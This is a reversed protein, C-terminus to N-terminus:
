ILYYKPFFFLTSEVHLYRSILYTYKCQKLNVSHLLAYNGPIYCVIYYPNNCPSMSFMAIKAINIKHAIKEFNADEYLVVDAGVLM